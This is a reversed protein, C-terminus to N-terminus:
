YESLIIKEFALAIERDGVLVADPYKLTIKNMGSILLDSNIELDFYLDTPTLIINDALVDNVYLEVNQVNNNGPYVMNLFVSLKLNNKFYENLNIYIDTEKGLSWTFDGECVSIGNKIYDSSNGGSTFLIEDGLNYIDTGICKESLLELNSSVYERIVIDPEEIKVLKLDIPTVYYHYRIYKFFSEQMFINLNWYNTYKEHWGAFSDAYMMLVPMDKNKDNEKIIMGCTEGIPSQEPYSAKLDEAESQIKPTYIPIDEENINDSLYALSSLNQGTTNVYEINYDDKEMMPLQPYYQRLYKIIEQYARFSGNYNWHSDTKMYEIIRAKM